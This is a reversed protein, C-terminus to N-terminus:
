ASLAFEYPEEPEPDEEFDAAEMAAEGETTRIRGPPTLGNNPAHQELRALMRRGEDRQSMASRLDEEANKVGTLVELLVSWMPIDRPWKAAMLPIGPDRAAVAAFVGRLIREACEHAAAVAIKSVEVPNSEAWERYIETQCQSCERDREKRDRHTFPFASAPKDEACLACKRIPVKQIGQTARYKEIGRDLRQKQRATREAERAALRRAKSEAMDAKLKEEPTM